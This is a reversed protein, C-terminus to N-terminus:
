AGSYSTPSNLTVHTGTFASGDQNLLEFLTPRCWSSITAFGYTYVRDSYTNVQMDYSFVRDSPTPSNWPQIQCVTFRVKSYASITQLSSRQEACVLITSDSPNLNVVLTNENEISYITSSSLETCTSSSSLWYTMPCMLDSTPVNFFNILPASWPTSDQILYKIEYPMGELTSM